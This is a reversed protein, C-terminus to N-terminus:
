QRGAGLDIVEVGAPPRFRFDGPKLGKASKTEILRLRTRNGDTDTAEYGLLTAADGRVWVCLSDLPLQPGPRLDLRIAGPAFSTDPVAALAVAGQLTWDLLDASRTAEPTLPSKIVQRNAETYTWVFAGDCVQVQRNPPDFTMEFYSPRLLRLKGKSLLPEDFGAFEQRQEFRATLAAYSGWTQRMRALLKEAGPDAARASAAGLTLLLVVSGLVVRRPAAAPM